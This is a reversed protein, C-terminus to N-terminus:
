GQKAPPLISPRPHRRDVEPEGPRRVQRARAAVSDWLDALEAVARDPHEAARAAVAKIRDRLEEQEAMPLSGSGATTAVLGYADRVAEEWARPDVGPPHAKRLDYVTPAVEKRGFDAQRKYRDLKPRMVVFLIAWVLLVGVGSLIVFRRGPYGEDAHSGSARIPPPLPPGPPTEPRDPVDNPPTTSM